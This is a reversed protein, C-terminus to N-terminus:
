NEDYMCWHPNCLATLEEHKKTSAGAANLYGINKIAPTNMITNKSYM